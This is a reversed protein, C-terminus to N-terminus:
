KTVPVRLEEATAHVSIALSLDMGNANIDGKIEGDLHV